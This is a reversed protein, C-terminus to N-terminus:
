QREKQDELERIRGELERRSKFELESIKMYFRRLCPESTKMYEQFVALQGRLSEEETM